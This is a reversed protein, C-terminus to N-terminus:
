PQPCPVRARSSTGCSLSVAECGLVLPRPCTVRPPRTVESFTSTIRTSSNSVSSRSSSRSRSPDATWSIGTSYRCGTSSFPDGGPGRGWAGGTGAGTGVVPPHSQDRHCGPTPHPRSLGTGKQPIRLPEVRLAARQARLHEAPRLVARPHGRVGDGEGDATPIFRPPIDGSPSMAVCGGCVCMCVCLSLPM